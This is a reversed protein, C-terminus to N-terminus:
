GNSGNVATEADGNSGKAARKADKKAVRQGVAQNVQHHHKLHESNTKEDPVHVRFPKEKSQVRCTAPQGATAVLARAPLLFGVCLLPGVPAYVVYTHVSATHWVWTEMAAMVVAMVVVAANVAV